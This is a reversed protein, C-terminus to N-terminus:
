LTPNTANKPCCKQSERTVNQHKGVWEKMGENRFVIPTFSRNELQLVRINYQRKTGKENNIYCRQLSQAGYRKTSPDFFRVNFIPM